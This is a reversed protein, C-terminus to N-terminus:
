GNQLWINLHIIAKEYNETIDAMMAVAKEPEGARFLRLQEQLQAFLNKLSLNGCVGKLSHCAFEAAQMDGNAVATCLQSYTSDQLFKGIIMKVLKDNNMLRDMLERVEIGALILEQNNM